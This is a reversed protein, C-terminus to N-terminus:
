EKLETEIDKVDYDEPLYLKYKYYKGITDIEYNLITNLDFKFITGDKKFCGEIYPEGETIIIETDNVCLAELIYGENAQIYVYYKATNLLNNTPVGKIGLVFKDTDSRIGQISKTEIEYTNDSKYAFIVIIASLVIIFLLLITSLIIRDIEIGTKEEKFKSNKNDKKSM